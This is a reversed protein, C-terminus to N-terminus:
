NNLAKVQMKNTTIKKKILIKQCEDNLTNEEVVCKKLIKLKNNDIIDQIREKRVYERISVYDKDIYEEINIM